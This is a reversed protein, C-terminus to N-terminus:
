EKPSTEVTEEEPWFYKFVNTGITEVQEWIYNLTENPATEPVENFANTHDKSKKRRRRKRNPDNKAEDSWENAEEKNSFTPKQLRKGRELRNTLTPTKPKVETSRQRMPAPPSPPLPKDPADM